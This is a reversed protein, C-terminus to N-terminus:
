THLHLISPVSVWLLFLHCWAQLQAKRCFPTVSRSGVLSLASHQHSQQGGGVLHSHIYSSSQAAISRPASCTPQSLCSATLLHTRKWVYRHPCRARLLFAQAHVQTRFVLWALWSYFGLVLSLLTHVHLLSLLVSSFLPRKWLCLLCLCVSPSSASSNTNKATHSLSLSSIEILYSASQM